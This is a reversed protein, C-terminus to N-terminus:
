ESHPIARSPSGRRVLRPAAVTEPLPIIELIRRNSSEVSVFRLKARKSRNECKVPCTSAVLSSPDLSEDESIWVVRNREPEPTPKEHGKKEGCAVTCVPSHSSM